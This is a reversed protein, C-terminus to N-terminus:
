RGNIIERTIPTGAPVFTKVARGLIGKLIIPEMGYPGRMPAVNELTILDGSQIDKIAYLSRRFERMKYEVDAKPKKMCEAALHIDGVYKFMQDKNLSWGADESIVNKLRFHKEIMCVGLATALQAPLTSISHDSLGVEIGYELLNYIRSINMETQPCPYKSVCHMLILNNRQNILDIEEMSAMGTSVVVPKNTDLIKNIFVPDNNEFSAIKYAQCKYRELYKFSELGYVSSFVAIGHQECFSFIKPVWEHPMYNQKYLEFLTKGDKYKVTSVTLEEPTYLQIKIVDVCAEKAERILKYVNDLEQNHNCSIEAIILPANINTLDYGLFNM